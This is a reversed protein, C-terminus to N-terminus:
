LVKGLREWMWSFVSEGLSPLCHFPKAMYVNCFLDSTIVPMVEDYELRVCGCLTASNSSAIPAPVPNEMM